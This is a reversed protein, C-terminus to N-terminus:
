LSILTMTLTRSLAPPPQSLSLEERTLTEASCLMLSRRSLSVITSISQTKSSSNEKTCDPLSSIPILNLTKKLLITLSAMSTKSLRRPSTNKSVMMMCSSIMPSHSLTIELRPLLKNAEETPPQSKTPLAWRLLQMLFMRLKPLPREPERPLLKAARQPDAIEAFSSSATMRLLTASIETPTTPKVTLISGDTVNRAVLGNKIMMQCKVTKIMISRIATCASNDRTILMM